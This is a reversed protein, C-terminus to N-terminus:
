FVARIGGGSLLKHLIQVGIELSVYQLMYNEMLNWM